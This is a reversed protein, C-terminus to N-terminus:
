LEKKREAIMSELEELDELTALTRIFGRANSRRSLYNRHAKNKEAWKKDAEPNYVAERKKEEM